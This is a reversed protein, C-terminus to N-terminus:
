AGPRVGGGGARHTADAIAHAALEDDGDGGGIPAADGGGRGEVPDADDGVLVIRRMQASRFDGGFEIEAEGGFVRIHRLGHEVPQRADEGVRAHRVADLDVGVGLVTERERLAPPDIPFRRPSRWQSRM